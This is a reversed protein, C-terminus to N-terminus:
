LKKETQEILKMIDGVGASKKKRRVTRKQVTKVPGAAEPQSVEAPKEAPLQEAAKAEAARKEAAAAAAVEALRSEEATLGNSSMFFDDDFFGNDAKAPEPKKLSVTQQVPEPVPAKVPEPIIEPVPAIYEPEPANESHKFPNKKKKRNKKKDPAPEAPEDFFSDPHIEEEAKTEQEAEDNFLGYFLQAEESVPGKRRKRPKPAPTSEQVPAPAPEQTEKKLSVKTEAAFVADEAPVSVPAETDPKGVPEDFLTGGGFLETLDIEPEKDAKATEAPLVDALIDEVPVESQVPATNDAPSFSTDSPIDAFFDADVEPPEKVPAEATTFFETLPDTKTMVEESAKGPVPQTETFLNNALVEDATDTQESNDASFTFDVEGSTDEIPQAESDSINVEDAIYLPTGNQSGSMEDLMSDPFSNDELQGFQLENFKDFSDQSQKKEDLVRLVLIFIIIFSPIIIVLVINLTKTAFAIIKGLFPHYWMVRSILKNEPLEYTDGPNTDFSVLYTRGGDGETIEAVRAPVATDGIYCLVVSGPNISSKESIKGILATGQPIKPTMNPSTTYYITYGFAKVAKGPGSFSVNLIVMFAMLLILIAIVIGEIVAAAKSKKKVGNDPNM